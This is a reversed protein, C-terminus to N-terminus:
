SLQCRGRHLHLVYKGIPKMIWVGQNKKFEQQISKSTLLASRQYSVEVFLAYDGPLVYTVPFFDHVKAEETSYRVFPLTEYKHFMHSCVYKGDREFQRKARKLNKALLDKRCLERGNRFHNVKQGHELHMNDFMEYIIDREAWYIDWDATADSEKWGRSKMVDYITNRFSSKFRVVDNSRKSDSSRNSITGRRSKETM